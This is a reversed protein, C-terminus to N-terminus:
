MVRHRTIGGGWGVKASHQVIERVHHFAWRNVPSTRWNALTVQHEPSPPFGDMLLTM